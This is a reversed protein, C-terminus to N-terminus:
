KTNGRDLMLEQMREAIAKVPALRENLVAFQGEMRTLSEQLNHMDDKSPMSRVEQELSQLRAEHRNMRGAHDDLRTANKRSPGSFLVWLATGLSLILSLVGLWAQLDAVSTEAPTM